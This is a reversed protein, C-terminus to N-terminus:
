KRCKDTNKRRRKSKILNFTNLHASPNKPSGVFNPDFHSGQSQAPLIQLEVVPCHKLQSPLVSPQCQSVHLSPYKPFPTLLFQLPVTIKKKKTSNKKRSVANLWNEVKIKLRHSHDWRLQSYLYTHYSWRVTYNCFSSRRFFKYDINPHIHYRRM